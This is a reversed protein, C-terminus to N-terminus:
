QENLLIVPINKVFLYNKFLEDGLKERYINRYLEIEFQSYISALPSVYKLEYDWKKLQDLFYLEQKDVTKVSSYADFLYKCFEKAQLSYVDRQILKIEEATFNNRQNLLDEIRQARYYPEYLNSIYYKYNKEPKNNATIIFDEKPNYSNPLENYTVFGTVEIEGDSPYFAM